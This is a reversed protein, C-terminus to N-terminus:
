ASLYLFYLMLSVSNELLQLRNHPLTLIHKEMMEQQNEPFSELIQLINALTFGEVQNSWCFDFVSYFQEPNGSTKLYDAVETRRGETNWTSDYWEQTANKKLFDCVRNTNDYICIDFLCNSCTVISGSGDLPEYCSSCPIFPCGQEHEDIQDQPIEKNCKTCTAFMVQDAGGGGNNPNSKCQQM